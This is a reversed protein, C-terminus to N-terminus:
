KWVEIGTVWGRPIAWTTAYQEVDDSAHKGHSMALVLQKRDLKVVWGVTTCKQVRNEIEEIKAWGEDHSSADDWSVRVLAGVKLRSVASSTMAEGRRQGLYLRRRKRRSEAM